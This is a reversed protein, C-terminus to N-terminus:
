NLRECGGGEYDEYGQKLGNRGVGAGARTRGHDMCASAQRGRRAAKGHPMEILQSSWTRGSFVVLSDCWCIHRSSSWLETQDVRYRTSFYRSFVRVALTAGSLHLVTFPVTLNVDTPMILFDFHRWARDGNGPTYRLLRWTPQVSFM